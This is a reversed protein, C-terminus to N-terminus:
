GLLIELGGQSIIGKAGLNELRVILDVIGDAPVVSELSLNGDTLPILDPAELAPLAALVAVLRDKAVNMKLRRFQDAKLASELIRGFGEAEKSKRLAFLVVPSTLISTCIKLKNDIISKGTETVCVGYDYIGSAVEAETGGPSFDVRAQKFIRRALNPYEAYVCIGPNDLITASKGCIIVQVPRKSVKSYSLETIIEVEKELGSEALCDLGTIGWKAMGRYVVMPIAQARTTYAQTFLDTGSVDALYKRGNVSVSIGIKKLLGFTAEALSGKPLAIINTNERM